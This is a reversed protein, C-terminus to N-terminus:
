SAAAAPRTPTAPTTDTLLMDVRASVPPPPAHPAALHVMAAASASATTDSASAPGPAAAAGGHGAARQVHESPLVRTEHRAAPRLASGGSYSRRTTSHTCCFRCVLTTAEKM